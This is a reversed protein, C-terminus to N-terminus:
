RREGITARLKEVELKKEELQRQIESQIATVFETRGARNLSIRWSAIADLITRAMKSEYGSALIELMVIANFEPSQVETREALPGDFLAAQVRKLASQDFPGSTQKVSGFLGELPTQKKDTKKNMNKKKM